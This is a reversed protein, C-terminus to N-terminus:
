RFVQLGVGETSLTDILFSFPFHGWGRENLTSVFLGKSNM